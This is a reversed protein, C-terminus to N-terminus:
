LIYFQVNPPLQALPQTQLNYRSRVIIEKLDKAFLPMEFYFYLRFFSKLLLKRRKLQLFLAMDSSKM